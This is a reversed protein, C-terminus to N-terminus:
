LSVIFRLSIFVLYAALALEMQRKKLQHALNVGYPVTLLSLPTLLAAGIVSVYGLSM